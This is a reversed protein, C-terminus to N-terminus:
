GLQAVIRLGISCFVSRPTSRRWFRHRPCWVSKARVQSCSSVHVALKMLERTTIADELTHEDLPALRKVKEQPLAKCELLDDLIEHFFGASSAGAM